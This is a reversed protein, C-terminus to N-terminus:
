MRAVRSPCNLRSRLLSLSYLSCIVYSLQVPCYLITCSVSITLACIHYYVPTHTSEAAKAKSSRSAVRGSSSLELGDLRDVLSLSLSPVAGCRVSGRVLVLVRAM